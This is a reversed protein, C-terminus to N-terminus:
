ASLAPGLVWELCAMCGWLTMLVGCSVRGERVRGDTGAPRTRAWGGMPAIARRAVEIAVEAAALM